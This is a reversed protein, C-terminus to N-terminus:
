RSARLIRGDPGEVTAEALLEEIALVVRRWEEAQDSKEAREAAIDSAEAGFVRLLFTATRRAEDDVVPGSRESPRPRDSSSM